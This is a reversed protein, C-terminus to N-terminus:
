TSACTPARGRPQVQGHEHVAGGARLRRDPLLGPRRRARRLFEATFAFIATCRTSAARPVDPSTAARAERKVLVVTMDDEQPAGRAFAEVADLLIASCSRWRSTTAAGARDGRGAAEGFQEGDAITTSTSATPCCRGPHRGAALRADRGPAADVAADRGASLEDAQLARVRRDGGPLAPDAGPRRQPLADSADAADLLGIFATIFRDDALTEALQNNVQMFATELDAGLRFAMRLMAQMQTVSLAPAIGHGTADGLVTLLGQDLVRCTSRTAAPSARRGRRAACTTAPFRRCRRRAAHEDARRAGDRAGPADERGRDGGRDHAGAAARGRVAGGAGDRAVEDDEDFVGDAKNLVQMVGVLVDKHDILPLTLM